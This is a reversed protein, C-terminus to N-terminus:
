TKLLSWQSIEEVEAEGEVEEEDLALALALAREVGESGVVVVGDLRPLEVV